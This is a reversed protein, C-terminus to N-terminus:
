KEENKLLEKLFKIRSEIENMNHEASDVQVKAEPSTLQEQAKKAIYNDAYDRGNLEIKEKIRKIIYKKMYCKLTLHQM